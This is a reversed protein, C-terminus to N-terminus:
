RAVIARILTFPTYGSRHFRKRPAMIAYSSKLVLGACCACLTGTVGRSLKVGASAAEQRRHWCRPIDRVNVAGSGGDAAMDGCSSDVMLRHQRKRARMTGETPHARNQRALIDARDQSDGLRPSDRRVSHMPQWCRALLLCQERRPTGVIGQLPTWRAFCSPGLVSRSLRLLCCAM